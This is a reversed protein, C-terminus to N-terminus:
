AAGAFTESAQRSFGEAMDQTRAKIQHRLEENLNGVERNSAELAALRARLEDNLPDAQSLARVHARTLNLAEALAILFIGIGAGQWGGFVSGFGMWTLIDVGGLCLLGLWSLSLTLAGPTKKA